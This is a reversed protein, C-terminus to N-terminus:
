AKPTTVKGKTFHDVVLLVLGVVAFVVDNTNQVGALKEGVLTLVALITPVYHALFPVKTWFEKNHTLFKVATGLVAVVLAVIALLSM